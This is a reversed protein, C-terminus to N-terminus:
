LIGESVELLKLLKLVAMDTTGYKVQKINVEDYLNWGEEQNFGRSKVVVKKDSEKQKIAECIGKAM